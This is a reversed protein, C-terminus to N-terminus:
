QLQAVQLEVKQNSIEQALQQEMLMIKQEKERLLM